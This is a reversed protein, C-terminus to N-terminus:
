VEPSEDEENDEGDDQAKDGEAPTEEEKLEEM